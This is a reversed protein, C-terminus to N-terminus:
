LHPIAGTWFQYAGLINILVGFYGLAAFRWDVRADTLALLLFAFPYADFLYRAGFQYWGAAHFLLIAIVMLGLTIWLATRTASFRRNRWFLFLFLPTTVFVSVATGNNIVDLIPHRDFPGNFLTQPFSFFNAVINSPVYMINFPGTTVTSYKQAILVNYGSDLPSGFIITNRWMFLALVGVLVALAPLLRRWPITAWAPKRRWLSALFGELQPEPHADQWALYFLFAYGFIVTARAFFACGLLVAALAYHRRLAALLALLTFTMCVIHATFWMRGGLSLWLSISGYWLLVCICVNELWVRRTFGNERAQELILFLLGFNLASCVATFLIDSTHLGWIAVFPMLAIAPMPPYVIYSKGHILVIDTLKPSLALDWHGHLFSEAQYIFYPTTSVAFHGLHFAKEFIWLSLLGVVFLAAAVLLNRKGLAPAFALAKNSPALPRQEQTQIQTEV